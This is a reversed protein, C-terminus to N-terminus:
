LRLLLNEFVQQQSQSKKAAPSRNAGRRKKPKAKGPSGNSEQKKEASGPQQRKARPRRSHGTKEEALSPDFFKPKAELSRVKGKGGKNYKFVMNDEKFDWAPVNPDPSPFDNYLMTVASEIQCSGLPQWTEDNNIQVFVSQQGDKRVVRYAEISQVIIKEKSMGLAAPAVLVASILPFAGKALVSIGSLHWLFRGFAV